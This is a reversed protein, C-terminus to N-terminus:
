VEYCISAFRKAISISCGSVVLILDVEQEINRNVNHITPSKVRSRVLDEDLADKGVHCVDKADMVDHRM